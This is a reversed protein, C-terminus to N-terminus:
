NGSKGTGLETQLKLIKDNWNKYLLDNYFVGVEDFKIEEGRKHTSALSSRKRIVVKVIVHDKDKSLTIEIRGEITHDPINNDSRDLKKWETNIIGADINEASLSYGDNVVLDKIKAFVTQINGNLPKEIRNFDFSSCNFAIFILFLLFLNKM